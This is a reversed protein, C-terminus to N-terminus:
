EVHWIEMNESRVDQWVDFGVQKTAMLHWILRKGDNRYISGGFYRELLYDVRTTGRLEIDELIGKVEEPVVRTHKYRMLFNINDLADHRIRDEDFIAFRFGQEKCYRQAAKWKNSWDRWHAQWDSKPKVEVLLSKGFGEKVQVFFDPTYEYERGNKQFPILIPQPIIDLVEHRFCQYILFDRELSSEYAIPENHYSVFGSVSRITPKIKRVQKM